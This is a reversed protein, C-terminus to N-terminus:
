SVSEKHTPTPTVLLDILAAELRPYRFHYAHQQAKEPLVKQGHLLLEAMEGLMLRLVFAPVRFFTWRHLVHGLTRTFTNNDVPEPAAGNVPGSLTEDHLCLDIIGILDDIHIWSMWQRGNGLAGGLGLRFVPLLRGLMGGDRGLVLGTRLLCVRIGFSEAQRAEREWDHCLTAAFDHGAPDTEVFTKTADTGYYGIASGSIFVRPRTARTAFYKVLEATVHLRSDRMAQKRRSSWRGATLNEGALNIVAEPEHGEAVDFISAVAEVEGHYQRRARAPDRSQITVAHGRQLLFPVLHSGIFGTGGTILIRM